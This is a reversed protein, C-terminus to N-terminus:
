PLLRDTVLPPGRDKGAQVCDECFHCPFLPKTKNIKRRGSAHGFACNKSMEHELYGVCGNLQGGVLQGHRRHVIGKRVHTDM